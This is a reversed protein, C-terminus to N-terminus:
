SNLLSFPCAADHTNSKNPYLGTYFQAAEEARGCVEGAFMLTPRIGEPDDALTIMQWNLGYRGFWFLKFRRCLGRALNGAPPLVRKM